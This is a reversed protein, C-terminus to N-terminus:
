LSLAEALPSDRLLARAKPRLGTDYLELREIKDAHHWNALARAGTMGIKNGGLDLERLRLPGPAACLSQVGAGKFGCDSLDAINSQVYIEMAKPTGGSLPGDIVGAIILQSSAPLAGAFLLLVFLSFLAFFRQSKIM